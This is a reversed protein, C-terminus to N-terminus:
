SVWQEVYPQKVVPQQGEDEENDYSDDRLSKKLKFIQVRERDEM